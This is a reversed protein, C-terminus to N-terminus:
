NRLAMKRLDGDKKKTQKEREKEKRGQLRNLHHDIKLSFRLPHFDMDGPQHSHTKMWMRFM